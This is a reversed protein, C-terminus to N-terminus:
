DSYLVKQRTLQLQQRSGKRKQEFSQIFFETNIISWVEFPLFITTPEM